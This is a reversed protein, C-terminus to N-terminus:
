GEGWGVSLYDLGQDDGIVPPRVDIFGGTRIFWDEERM